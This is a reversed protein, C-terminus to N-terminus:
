TNHYSCSENSCFTIEHSVNEVGLWIFELEILVGQLEDHHHPDDSDNSKQSGERKHNLLTVVGPRDNVSRKVENCYCNRWSQWSCHGYTSNKCYISKLFLLNETDRRWSNINTASNVQHDEILCAGKGFVAELDKSESSNLVCFDIM